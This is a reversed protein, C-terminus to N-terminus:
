DGTGGTFYIHIDVKTTDVSCFLVPTSCRNASPAFGIRAPYILGSLQWTLQVAIKPLYKRMLLYSSTLILFAVLIKQSHIAHLACHETNRM